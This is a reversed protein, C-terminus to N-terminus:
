GGGVPPFFAVREDGQLQIDPQRHVGDVLILTVDEPPLGLHQIVQALTAGPAIELALGQHPDYGPVFQRLTAFLRVQLPM